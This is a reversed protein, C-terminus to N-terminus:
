TGTLVVGRDDSARCAGLNPCSLAYLRHGPEAVLPTSWTGSRYTVIRGNGSRSSADEVVCLASSRCVDSQMGSFIQNPIGQPDIKSAPGWASGNFTRASTGTISGFTALCFDPGPCSLGFGTLLSSRSIKAATSWTSGNFSSFYNVGLVAVCFSSSACSVDAGGVFKGAAADIASPISWATGDFTLVYGEDDAAACFTATPCTISDLPQSDVVVPVTWSTGDFTIIKGQGSAVCFSPSRCSALSINFGNDILSPGSWRTGNFTFTCFGSTGFCFSKTPCSLTNLPM